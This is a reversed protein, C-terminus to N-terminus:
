IALGKTIPRAGTWSGDAKIVTPPPEITAIHKGNRMIEITAGHYAADLAEGPAARFETVTLRVRQGSFDPKPLSM